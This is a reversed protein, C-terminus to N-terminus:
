EGDWYTVKYFIVKKTLRLRMFTFFSDTLITKYGAEKLEPNVYFRIEYKLWMGKGGGIYCSVYEIFGSIYWDCVVCVIWRWGDVRNKENEIRRLGCNAVVNGPRFLTTM